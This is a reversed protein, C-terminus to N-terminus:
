IAFFILKSFSFFFLFYYNGDCRLAQKRIGWVFDKCLNCYTPSSFSFLYFNHGAQKQIVEEECVMEDAVIEEEHELVPVSGSGVLKTPHHEELNPESETEM